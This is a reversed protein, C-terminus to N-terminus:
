IRSDQRVKPSSCSPAGPPEDPGPERMGEETHSVRRLGRGKWEAAVAEKRERREERM